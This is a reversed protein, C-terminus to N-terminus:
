RPWRAAIRPIRPRTSTSPPDRLLRRIAERTDDLKSFHGMTTVGIGELQARVAEPVRCENVLLFRLQEEM